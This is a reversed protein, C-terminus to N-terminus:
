RGQEQVARYLARRLRFNVERAEITDFEVQAREHGALYRATVTNVMAEMERCTREPRLNRLASETRKLWNKAIAAHRNEHRVIDAELTQWILRTQPSVRKPPTWKPLTIELNLSLNTQDVECGESTRKYSVKGDFTVETAGPHRVGTESLFPGRRNLDQDLEALTSGKVAFYTTKETISAAGAGVAAAGALSLAVGLVCLGTTLKM